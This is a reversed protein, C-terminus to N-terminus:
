CQAFREELSPSNDISNTKRVKKIDGQLDLFKRAVPVFNTKGKGLEVMREDRKRKATVRTAKGAVGKAQLDLNYDRQITAKKRLYEKIEPLQSALFCKLDNVNNFYGLLEEYLTVDRLRNAKNKWELLGTTTCKTSRSRLYIEGGFLFKVALKRLSEAKHEISSNFNNQASLPFSTSRSLNDARKQIGAVLNSAKDEIMKWTSRLIERGSIEQEMEKYSFHMYNNNSKVLTAITEEWQPCKRVLNELHRPVNFKTVKRASPWRLVDQVLQVEKRKRCENGCSPCTTGDTTRHCHICKWFEQRSEAM